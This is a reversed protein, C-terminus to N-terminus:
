SKGRKVAIEGYLIDALLELAQKLHWSVTKDSINMRASIERQSLSQAHFLVFAERTREPLHELAAQVRRLEERALVQDEPGPIDAAVGLAELDEVAEIPIIKQQRVRDVLLNRATTFVFPRTAKPLEKQASEFVRVYVEQLLEAVDANNRWNSRLFQTLTAELPLVEKLFWARLDDTAGTVIQRRLDSFGCETETKDTM